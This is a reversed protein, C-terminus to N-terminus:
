KLISEYCSLIKDSTKSWSFQEKARDKANKGIKERLKEDKLLNLIEIELSKVDGAKTLIGADGIMWPVEGVDSAVIARGSAMYEGIKLPSKCRVQKTDEFCAVAIDILNLYYPVIDHKILGTIIVNKELKYEKIKKELRYQESGGGVFIIKADPYKLVINKSAELLLYAYQAGHLQGLYGVTPFNINYKKIIENLLNKDFNKDNFTDMNVCINSKVIKEKFGLNKTMTILEDSACSISDVVKPITKELFNLYTGYFKSPSSYNYIGYEWDDWDYHIPKNQFVSAFIAPISANTFCKQFHIIDAWKAIKNMRLINTFIKWWHRNFPITEFENCKSIIKGRIKKPLPFYVLKVVHGKKVFQKAIERVRITWPENSSYIDHPHVM